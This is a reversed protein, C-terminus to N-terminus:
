KASHSQWVGDVKKWGLKNLHQWYASLTEGELTREFERDYVDPFRSKAPKGNRELDRIYNYHKIYDNISKAYSLPFDTTNFYVGLLRENVSVQVINAREQRKPTYPTGRYKRFTMCFMVIKDQASRPVLKVAKGAEYGNLVQELFPFGMDYEPWLWDGQFDFLAERIRGDRYSLYACGKVGKLTLKYIENM